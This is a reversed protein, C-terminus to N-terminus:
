CRHYLPQLALPSRCTAIHSPKLCSVKTVDGMAGQGLKEQLIYRGSGLTAGETLPVSSGGAGSSAGGGTGTTGGGTGTTGTGSSRVGFGIM